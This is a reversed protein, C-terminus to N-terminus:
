RERFPEPKAAAERLAEIGKAPRDLAAVFETWQEPALVFRTQAAVVEEASRLASELIFRSSTVRTARAAQEVLAKEAGSVRVNFREGKRSTTKVIARTAPGAPVAMRMGKKAAEERAKAM